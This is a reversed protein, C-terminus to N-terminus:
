EGTARGNRREQKREREGLSIPAVVISPCARTAQFRSENWSAPVLPVSSVPFYLSRFLSSASGGGISPRLSHPGESSSHLAEGIAYRSVEPCDGGGGVRLLLLLGLRM